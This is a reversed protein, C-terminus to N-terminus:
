SEEGLSPGGFHTLDDEDVFQEYQEIIRHLVRMPLLWHKHVETPLPQQAMELVQQIQMGSLEEMTKQEIFECLMSAASQCLASGEAMFWADLVIGDQPDVCLQLHVRDDTLPNEGEAQHTVRDAPGHHYPDEFHDRIADCWDEWNIPHTYSSDSDPKTDNDKFPM